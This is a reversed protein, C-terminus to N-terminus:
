PTEQMALQDRLQAIEVKQCEILKAMFSGTVFQRTALELLEAHSLREWRERAIGYVLTEFEGVWDRQTASMGAGQWEGISGVGTGGLLLVPYASTLPFWGIESKLDPHKGKEYTVRESTSNPLSYPSFRQKLPLTRRRMPSLRGTLADSKEGESVSRM